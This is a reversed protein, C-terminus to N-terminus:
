LQHLLCEEDAVKGLSSFLISSARLLGGKSRWEWPFTVVMRLRLPLVCRVKTIVFHAKLLEYSSSYETLCIVNEKIEPM